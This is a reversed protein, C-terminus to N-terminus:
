TLSIEEAPVDAPIHHIDLAAPPGSWVIKGKELRYVVDCIAVTALRHAVIILTKDGPLEGVARMIDAETNTDLAATAEDLVLVEPDHYLARAIGVRQREGGSLRVGREGIETHLGEPLSGILSALQAFQVARAVAQDDIESEPIGFAINERLSQDALYINQSVYGIRRQWDKSITGLSQGDILVDGASPTLLALIVDILTTKGSGSTGVIGVCAGRAISFGIHDLAPSEAGDYRYAMDVVDVSRFPTQMSVQGGPQEQAGDEILESYLMDIVPSAYRLNQAANLIKSLSPMIRFAAAAFLAVTPVTRDLPAGQLALFCTTTALALIAITELWVPPLQNLFMNHREFYARGAAHQSFANLFFNERGLIKVDKIGGLGQQSQRIRETDHYQRMKGWHNLRNRISGYFLVSSGGFLVFLIISVTPSVFFLFSIMAAIVVLEASLSMVPSIVLLSLLDTGSTINYILTASNRQLHFTYPKALYQGYLRQSLRVQQRFSFEIQLFLLWARYANKIVYGAALAIMLALSLTLPKPHGLSASLFRMASYKEIASPNILLMMAPLVLSIGLVELVSGVIQMLFLVLVRRSASRGLIALVKRGETFFQQGRM